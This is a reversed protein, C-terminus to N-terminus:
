WPSKNSGAAVPAPGASISSFSTVSNSAGYGDGKDARVTVHAVCPKDHLESSDNITPVGVARGLSSLLAKSMQKATDNSSWLNLNVFLRRNQFEGSCVQLTTALYDDGAKSKKVESATIIIRYDGKPLPSFEGAPEVTTTDFGNLNAMKTKTGNM